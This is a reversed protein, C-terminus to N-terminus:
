ERLKANNILYDVVKERRFEEIVLEFMGKEKLTKVAKEYGIKRYDEYKMLKLEIEPETIEIKEIEAIKNLLIERKARWVAIEELAKKTEDNIEKGAQKILPQLYVAVLSKPVDFPNESILFNILQNEAKLKAEREKQVRIELEIQDTLYSLSNFGFGKAFEDDIQPLQKEKIERIVFEYEVLQSRLSEDKYDTPYRLSVKRRDDVLSNVLRENIEKPIDPNGLIITYNSSKDKRLVGSKEYLIEYDVVLLDGPMARRTFVPVYTARSDQLKSM